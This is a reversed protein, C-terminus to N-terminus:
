YRCNERTRIGGRFDFWAPQNAASSHVSLYPQAAGGAM